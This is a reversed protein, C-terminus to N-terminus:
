ENDDPGTWVGSINTHKLMAYNVTSPIGVYAVPTCNKQTQDHSRIGRMCVPPTKM